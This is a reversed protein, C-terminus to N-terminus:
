TCSKKEKTHPSLSEHATLKNISLPILMPVNVTRYLLIIRYAPTPQARGNLWQRARDNRSSEPLNQRYGAHRALILQSCARGRSQGKQDIRLSEPPCYYAYMCRAGSRRNNGDNPRRTDTMLLFGWSRGIQLQQLM